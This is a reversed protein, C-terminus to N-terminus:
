KESRFWPKDSTISNRGRLICGEREGFFLWPWYTNISDPRLRRVWCPALKRWNATGEVSFHPTEDIGQNDRAKARILSYCFTGQAPLQMSVFKLKWVAKRKGSVDDHHQSGQKLSKPQTGALLKSLSRVTQGPVRISLLIHWLSSGTSRSCVSASPLYHQTSHVPFNPFHIPFGLRTWYIM